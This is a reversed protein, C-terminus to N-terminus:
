HVISNLYSTLIWNNKNLYIYLNCSKDKLMCVKLAPESATLEMM